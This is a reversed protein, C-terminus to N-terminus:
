STRTRSVPVNTRNLWPSSGGVVYWVERDEAEPGTHVRVEDDAGLEHIGPVNFAAPQLVRAQDEGAHETPREPEYIAGAVTTTNPTKTFDGLGNDDTRTVQVLDVTVTSRRQSRM